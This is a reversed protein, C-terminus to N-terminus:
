ASLDGAIGGLDSFDSDVVIKPLVGFGGPGDLAEDGSVLNCVSQSPMESRKVPKTRLPGLYAEDGARNGGARDM